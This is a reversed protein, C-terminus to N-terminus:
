EIIEASTIIENLAMPDIDILKERLSEAKVFDKAKAHTVILRYLDSVVTEKNNEAIQSGVLSETKIHKEIIKDEKENNEVYQVPINTGPISKESILRSESKLDAQENEAYRLPKLIRDSPLREVPQSDKPTIMQLFVDVLTPNFTTGKEKRLIEEVVHLPNPEKYSRRSRLSDFVDAITIMQAVINPKWGPRIAPYGTGDFNLHHELASLIAINPIEALEMLYLCGKVPHTEIIMREESSLMESKSLIEDPIFTKGVDHLLAAIGIEHLQNGAFGMEAALSMTLIGVNILHTYTYEHFSKVSALLYIPCLNRKLENVFRVVIQDVSRIDIKKELHIMRYQEELEQSEQGTLLVPQQIFQGSPSEVAKPDNSDTNVGLSDSENKRLEVKGLKICNRSAISLLDPSSLDRLFQHFEDKQLEPLFTLSEIGRHKLILAFKKAAHSVSALRRRNVVVDEGVLFITMAEDSQMLDLLERYAKEINETIYPNHSLYLRQSSIAASMWSLIQTFKKQFELDATM